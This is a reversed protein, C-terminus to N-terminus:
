ASENSTNTPAAAATREAAEQANSALTITESTLPFRASPRGLLANQLENADDEDMRQMDEIEEPTYGLDIRARGVPIIPKGATLKVAADAKAAWTPTAPDSLITQLRFDEETLERGVVKLGLRMVREWCNGFMRGKLECKKVLRNESSRIADASAPNDSSFSLYSPPLGTDSGVRKDISLLATTYNSLEAASFQDASATGSENKFTLIGAMFAKYKAYPDTGGSPDIEERGVGFLLRQPVAMLESAAQMNMVMRTAVDQSSRLEEFIESRGQHDGVRERNYFPVIPVIGLSHRVPDAYQILKGHDDDEYYLTENPLYITYRQRDNRRNFKYDGERGPQFLFRVAWLVRKTRRDTEVWMHRPSEVRIIPIATPHGYARDEASPSSVSVFCRGHILTELHATPAQEDLDNVQWWRQFEESAELEGPYRFGNIGIRENLADLYLRSYGVSARLDQMEPPMATGLAKPVIGAEYYASDERLCDRDRGLLQSAEEVIEEITPM